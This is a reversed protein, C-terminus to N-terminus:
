IKSKYFHWKVVESLHLILPLLCLLAFSSYGLIVMAGMKPFSLYPYFRFSFVDSYICSFFLVDLIVIFLIAAMDTIKFYCENYRGAKKLGYGRSIMSRSSEVAHELSWGILSSFANLSSKVRDIYSVSSTLGMSRRVAMVQKARRGLLPIFRLTSSLVLATKPLFKSLLLLYKDATFVASLAKCWLLVSCLTIALTAGYVFSEITIPNGGLFFLVTKGKHSFLPNIITVLLAIPLIFKFQKLVDAGMIVACFAIAGVFSIVCWVLDSLLCTSILVSLFYVAQPLPHFKYLNM